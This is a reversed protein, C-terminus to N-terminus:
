LSTLKNISNNLWELYWETFNTKHKENYYNVPFFGGESVRDDVWINGKEKGTVVINIFAGCGIHSIRLMGDCWKANDYDEEQFNTDRKIDKINWISEFRLPNSLNIIESQKSNQPIDLIGKELNLLGYYPGCGGNGFELIFQRYSLPLTFKHKKEFEIIENESIDSDFNYKHHESGFVSFNKDLKKLISIKDGIIKINRSTETFKFDENNQKIEEDIMKKEAFRESKWFFRKGFKRLHKAWETSVTLQGKKKNSM